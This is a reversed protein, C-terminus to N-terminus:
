AAHTSSVQHLADRAAEFSREALNWNVRQYWNIVHGQALHRLLEEPEATMKIVWEDAGVSFRADVSGAACKTWAAIAPLGQSAFDAYYDPDCHEEIAKAVEARNDSIEKLINVVRIAQSDTASAMDIDLDSLYLYWCNVAHDLGDMPHEDGERHPVCMLKISACLLDLNAELPSAVLGSGILDDDARFRRFFEQLSRERFKVSASGDDDAVSDLDDM